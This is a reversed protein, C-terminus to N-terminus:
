MTRVNSLRLFIRESLDELRNKHLKRSFLAVLIARGHTDRM